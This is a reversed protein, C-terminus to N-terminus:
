LLKSATCGSPKTASSKRFQAKISVIGLASSKRRPSDLPLTWGHLNWLPGLSSELKESTRLLHGHPLIQSPSNPFVTGLDVGNVVRRYMACAVESETSLSAAAIRENWGTRWRPCELDRLERFNAM